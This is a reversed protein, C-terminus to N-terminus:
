KRCKGVSGGKCITKGDVWTADSMRVADFKTGKVKAGTRQEFSKIIDESLQRVLKNQVGIMNWYDITVGKLDTKATAFLLEPTLSTAIGLAALGGSRKLFDRRERNTTGM